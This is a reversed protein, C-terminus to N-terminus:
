RCCLRKGCVPVRVLHCVVVVAGCPLFAPLRMGSVPSGRLVARHGAADHRAVVGQARVRGKAKGALASGYEPLAIKMVALLKQLCQRSPHVLMHTGSGPAAGLLTGCGSPGALVGGVGRRCMPVVACQRWPLQEVAMAHPLGLPRLQEIAQQHLNRGGGIGRVFRGHQRQPAGGINRLCAHSRNSRHPRRQQNGEPRQQSIDAGPFPALFAHRHRAQAAINM